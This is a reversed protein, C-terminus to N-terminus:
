VGARAAVEDAEEIVAAVESAFSVAPSKHFREIPPAPLMRIPRGLVDLHGTLVGLCTLLMLNDPFDPLFRAMKRAASPTKPFFYKGVLSNLLQIVTCLTTNTSGRGVLPAFTCLGHEQALNVRLHFLLSHQQLVERAANREGMSCTLGARMSAQHGDAILQRRRELLANFRRIYTSRIHLLDIVEANTFQFDDQSTHAPYM